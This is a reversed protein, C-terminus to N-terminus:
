KKPRGTAGKGRKSTPPAAAAVYRALKAPPLKRWREGILRAIEGASLKPNQAKIDNRLESAFIHFSQKQRPPEPAKPPKLRRLAEARHLDAAEAEDAEEEDVVAEAADDSPADRQDFVEIVEPRGFIFGASRYFTFEANRDEIQLQHWRNKLV